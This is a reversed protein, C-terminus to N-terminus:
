IRLTVIWRLHRKQFYYYYNKFLKRTAIKLEWSSWRVKTTNVCRDSLIASWKSQESLNCNAERWPANRQTHNNETKIKLELLRMSGAYVTGYVPTPAVSPFTKPNFQSTFPLLWNYHLWCVTCTHIYLYLRTVKQDFFTSTFCLWKIM